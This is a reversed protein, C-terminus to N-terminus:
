LYVIGVKNIRVDIVRVDGALPCFKGHVLSTSSMAWFIVTKISFLFPPEPVIM